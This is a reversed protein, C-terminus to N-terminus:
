HFAPALPAQNDRHSQVKPMQLKKKYKETNALSKATPM